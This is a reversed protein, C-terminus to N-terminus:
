FYKEQNKVGLFDALAVCVVFSESVKAEHAADELARKLKSTMYGHKQIRMKGNRLPTQIKRAM